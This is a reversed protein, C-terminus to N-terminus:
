ASMWELFLFGGMGAPDLLAEAERIRSRGKLAALDGIGASAEWIARGADVLEDIGHRRLWDAQSLVVGDDLVQEIALDTTIDCSGPASLWDARGQHGVHTRLWGGDRAALTSSDAGYDAVVVRPARARAAQVWRQAERLLPLRSGAALDLPLHHHAVTVADLPERVELSYAAGDRRPGVRLEHWTVGDFTAVDFPLNDLLENAFVLDVRGNESPTLDDPALSALNPHTLHQARQAASVEVQTWRLAGATLVVPAAAVVARALTGPGAGWEEITFMAPRGAETWWEDVAQAIVAGFLPGVEPATLFDGRRGAQGSVAYFGEDPDYLAQAVYESVPISGREAIQRDLRAALSDGPVSSM